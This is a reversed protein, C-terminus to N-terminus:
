FIVNKLTKKNELKQFGCSVFGENINKLFYGIM